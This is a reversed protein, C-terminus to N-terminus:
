VLKNLLIEQNLEDILRLAQTWDRTPKSTKSGQSSQLALDKYRRLCDSLDDEIERAKEIDEISMQSPIWALKGGEEGYRGFGPKRGSGPSLIGKPHGSGERKGGSNIRSGGRGRGPKYPKFQIQNENCYKILFKGFEEVDAFDLEDSLHEGEDYWAIISGEIIGQQCRINISTAFTLYYQTRSDLM